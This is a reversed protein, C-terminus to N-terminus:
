LLLGVLAAALGLLGHLTLLGLGPLGRDKLDGSGQGVVQAREQTHAVPGLLAAGVHGLGDRGGHLLLVQLLLV